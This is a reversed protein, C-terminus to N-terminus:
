RGYKRIARKRVNKRENKSDVLNWATTYRYKKGWISILMRMGTILSLLLLSVILFLIDM